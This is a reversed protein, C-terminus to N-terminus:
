TGTSKESPTRTIPKPLIVAAYKEHGHKCIGSVLFSKDTITESSPGAIIKRIRGNRSIVKSLNSLAKKKGWTM